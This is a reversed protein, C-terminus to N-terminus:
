EENLPILELEGDVTKTKVMDNEVLWDLLTCIITDTDRKTVARGIMYSCFSAAGLLFWLATINEL